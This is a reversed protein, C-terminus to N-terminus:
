CVGCWASGGRDCKSVPLRCHCCIEEGERVLLAAAADIEDQLPDGEWDKPLNDRFEKNAAVIARLSRILEERDPKGM